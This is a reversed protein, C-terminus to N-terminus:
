RLPANSDMASLAREPRDTIVAAVRDDARLIRLMRADNVTWVWSPLGRQGAWALLRPRAIGIHPALLDVGTLRVRRELERLRPRPGLLLGTRAQPALGKAAILVDDEFSTVVFQDGALLGAVLEMAREVCGREKLEIDVGIRGAALSLVDALAPARGSGALERIRDHPLRAVARGRIRADHVVVAEGDATSRVDIEIADCGLDIAARYADLSNQPAPGWAGRHAIVLAAAGPARAVPLAGPSM